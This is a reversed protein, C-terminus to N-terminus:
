KNWLSKRINQLRTLYSYDYLKDGIVVWFGGILEPRVFMELEVERGTKEHIKKEIKKEISKDLEMASAFMVHDINHHERYLEKYVLIILRMVSIREHKLVLWLFRQYLESAKEETDKNKEDGDIPILNNKEGKFLAILNDLFGKPMQDGAKLGSGVYLLKFKYENKIRPNLLARQAEPVVSMNDYLAGLYGYIYKDVSQARAEEFLARSYRTAISGVNM